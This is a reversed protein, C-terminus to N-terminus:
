HYASEGHSDFTNGPSNYFFEIFDMVPNHSINVRINYHHINRKATEYIHSDLLEM